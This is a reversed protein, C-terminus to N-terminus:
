PTAPTFLDIIESDGVIMVQDNPLPIARPATRMTVPLTAVPALSRDFIFATDTTVAVINRGTAALACGAPLAIEPHMEVTESAVDIVAAPGGCAVLARGDALATVAGGSRGIGALVHPQASRVLTVDSTGLFVSVLAGDSGLLSTAPSPLAGLSTATMSGDLGSFTAVPSGTVLFVDNGQPVLTADARAFGAKDGYDLYAGNPAVTTNFAWTTGTVNGAADRGGFLYVIGNAGVGLGLGSRPAPLPIRGVFSHDFANYIAIADSAAGAPDTCGAVIAGYPLVGFAVGTRAPTFSAPAAGISNPAAMYIVIKASVAGLSFAPSQGVAIVDGGADIGEVVLAGVGGDGPLDLSIDFGSASRTATTVTHPNTVTLRLTQVPDLVTSGPATVLSVSVTGVDSTCPGIAALLALSRM